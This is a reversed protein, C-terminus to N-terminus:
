WWKMPCNNDICDKVVEKFGKFTACDKRGIYGYAINDDYDKIVKYLEQCTENDIEGECDSAYLFFLIPNYKGEYKKDLKNTEADYKDFFDKREEDRFIYMSKELEKYHEFIDKETLEAVKTRLNNFGGYGLDISKNKGEITVGM